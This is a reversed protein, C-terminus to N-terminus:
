LRGLEQREPLGNRRPRGADTSDITVFRRLLLTAANSSAAVFSRIMSIDDRIEPRRQDRETLSLPGPITPIRLASIQSGPRVVRLFPVPNPSVITRSAASSRPPLTSTSSFPGRPPATIVTCRGIRPLGTM